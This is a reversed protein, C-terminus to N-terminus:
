RTLCVEASLTHKAIRSTWFPFVNKLGDMELCRRFRFPTKGLVEKVFGGVEPEKSARPGCCQAGQHRPGPGLAGPGKSVREHSKVDFIEVSGDSQVVALRDLAPSAAFGAVGAMGAAVDFGGIM